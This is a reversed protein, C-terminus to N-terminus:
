NELAKEAPGALDKADLTVTVEVRSDSLKKVKTKM